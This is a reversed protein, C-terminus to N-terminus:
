FAGERDAVVTPDLPDVQVDNTKPSLLGLAYLDLAMGDRLLPGLDTYVGMFHQDGAGYPDNSVPWGEGVFTYFVDVWAGSAGPTLRARFGDFSRAAENWDLSGVVLSDGYNLMFRGADFKLHSSQLRLYGEYVGLTPVSLTSPLAGLVGTAQPTFQLGVALDRGVDIPGVGLGIRTRYVISDGESFRAASLGLADYNQRWENRTFFSGTLKIPIGGAMWTGPVPPAPAPAPPVRPADEVVSPEPAADAELPEEVPPEAHVERELEEDPAPPQAGAPTAYWLAAILAASTLSRARSRRSVQTM